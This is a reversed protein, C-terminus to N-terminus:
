PRDSGNIEAGGATPLAHAPDLATISRKEHPNPGAWDPVLYM